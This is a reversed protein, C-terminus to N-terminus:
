PRRAKPKIRPLRPHWQFRPLDIRGDAGFRVGEAKLMARQLGPHACETSLGGHSNVVRHWPVAGEPAAGLAWGIGVPSLREDILRSLQGYTAVRGRPIKKVWAHVRAFVASPAPKKTAPRM